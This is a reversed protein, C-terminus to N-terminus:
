KVRNELYYVIIKKKMEIGIGKHVGLLNKLPSFCGGDLSNTTNPIRLEPYKKYTYLYPLFRVLSRYASRVNKHKYHWGRKSSDPVRESLFDRYTEEWSELMSTFTDADTQILNGALKKLAISAELKPHNTLKRRLIAQMHFHCMQVPIDEFLAMIGPKGDLVVAELIMGRAEMQSMLNRYVEKSETSVFNYAIPESRQPDKAVILGFKEEKRGFFTVDMVAVCKRAQKDHIEPIFQHVREQIWERSRYYDKSLDNLTKRRYVYESFLVSDL